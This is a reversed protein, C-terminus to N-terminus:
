KWPTPDIGKKCVNYSMVMDKVGIGGFYEILEVEHGQFFDKITNDYVNGEKKM